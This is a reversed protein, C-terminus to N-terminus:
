RAREVIQAVRLAHDVPSAMQARHLKRERKWERHARLWRLWQWPLISDEMEEVLEFTRLLHPWAAIQEVPFNFRRCLQATCVEKVRADSISRVQIM